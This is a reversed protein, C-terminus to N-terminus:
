SLTTIRSHSFKCKNGHACNQSLHARCPMVFTPQSLPKDPKSQHVEPQEVEKDAMWYEENAQGSGKKWQGKDSKWHKPDSRSSHRQDERSIPGRDPRWQDEIPKRHSSSPRSDGNPISEPTSKSWSHGGSEGFAHWWNSGADSNGASLNINNVVPPVATASTGPVVSVTDVPPNTAVDVLARLMRSLMDQSSMAVSSFSM